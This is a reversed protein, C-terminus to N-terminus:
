PFEDIEIEPLDQCAQTHRRRAQFNSIIATSLYIEYLSLVFSLICGSLSWSLEKTVGESM